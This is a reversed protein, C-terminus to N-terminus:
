LTRAGPTTLGETAGDNNVASGRIVCYVRDGDALAASLPKLLVLGGGEGRAYGNARADFAYARGDPSLGGFRAATLTSEPVLNLSVGGALALDSEGRRLSECALHVAVLASSQATDVAMSPGSLGLAYSLRNAIVGRNLGTNTHATILGHRDTLRAYDDWCAGVFVGTASGALAAPVIGADEVAEWGLELVLRQQPDMAEAEREPIGFFAADFGEVDELFGARSPLEPYAAWRDAPPTGLADVGDRLLRWFEEPSRAGPLRCSLGVVAVPEDQRTTAGSQGPMMPQDLM